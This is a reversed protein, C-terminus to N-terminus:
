IQNLLYIAVPLLLSFDEKVEQFMITTYASQRKKNINTM